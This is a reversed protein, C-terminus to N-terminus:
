APRCEAIIAEYKALGLERGLTAEYGLKGSEGRRLLSERDLSAALIARCVGDVDGNRLAEGCDFREILHDIDSRPGIYLVPIGRALYGIVKSPVILGEFGERLTAVALDAIGLSEPLRSAPVLDEFRVSDGLGLDGVMRRTEELRSGKGIVVLRLGPASRLALAFGHLLTAFEHGIGVNGSYLLVFAEGLGWERRLSNDTGRVVGGTGTAWNSIERIRGPAVGKAQLRQSMVPGLSVVREASRYAWRFITDLVRTIPSDAGLAGHAVIVEPYIDMAIVIFPRRRLHAAFAVIPVTLPPNTQAVYIDAARGWLLRPLLGAYFWLQRLLKLRHIDGGLLKPTRRLRVGAAAPDPGPDGNLPAYLDSGCIVDVSYGRRALYMTIDRPLEAGGWGEPYYFQEIFVM